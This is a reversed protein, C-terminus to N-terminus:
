VSLKEASKQRAKRKALLRRQQVLPNHNQSDWSITSLDTKGIGSIGTIAIKFKKGAFRDAIKAWISAIEDKNNLIAATTPLIWEDDM